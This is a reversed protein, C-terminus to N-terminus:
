SVNSDIVEQLDSIALSDIGMRKPRYRAKGDGNDEKCSELAKKIFDHREVKQIARTLAPFLDLERKPFLSLLTTMQKKPPGANKRPLEALLSISSVSTKM